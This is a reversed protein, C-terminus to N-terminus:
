LLNRRQAEQIHYVNAFDLQRRLKSKEEGSIYESRARSTLNEIHTKEQQALRILEQDTMQKSSRKSSGM